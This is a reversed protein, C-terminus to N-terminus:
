TRSRWYTFGAVVLLVGGIAVALAGVLGTQDTDAAPPEPDEVAEIVPTPEQTPLPTAEQVDVPPPVIEETAEMIAADAADNVQAEPADLVTPQPIERPEALQTQSTDFEMTTQTMMLPPSPMPAIGAGADDDFAEDAAAEEADFDAEPETEPLADMEPMTEMEVEDARLEELQEEEAQELAQDELAGATVQVDRTATPANAVQAPADPASATDRMDDSSTTLLVMGLVILVMAAAASLASILPFRVVNRPRTEASTPQAPRRDAALMDPTLTYNRPAKLPAAQQILRVTQQLANLERQLEPETELRRELTEREDDEIEGDIYASLLEYDQDTM